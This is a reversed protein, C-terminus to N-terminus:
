LVRTLSLPVAFASPLPLGRAALASVVRIMDHSTRKPIYNFRHLAHLAEHVLTNVAREHCLKPVGVSRGDFYGWRIRSPRVVLGDKRVNIVEGGPLILLQATSYPRACM